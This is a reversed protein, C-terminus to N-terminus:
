RSLSLCLALPVCTVGGCGPRLAPQSVPPPPALPVKREARAPVRRGRGDLQLGGTGHRTLSVGARARAGPRRAVSAELAARPMAASVVCAM